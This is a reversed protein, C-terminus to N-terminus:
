KAPREAQLRITKIATTAEDKVLQNTDNAALDGLLNLAKSDGIRGLARVFVARNEIRKDQALEMLV